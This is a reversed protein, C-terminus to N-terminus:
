PRSGSVDEGVPEVLLVLGEADIVRVRTGAPLRHGRHARALWLEGGLRVQGRPEAARVLVGEKGILAGGGSPPAPEVARRFAPYLLADKLVWVLLVLAASAAQIFGSAVLWWLLVAILVAGPLQLLVYRILPSM